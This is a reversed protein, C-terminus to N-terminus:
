VMASMRICVRCENRDGSCGLRQGAGKFQNMEAYQWGNYQDSDREFPTTNRTQYAMWGFYAAAIFACLVVAATFAILWRPASRSQIM